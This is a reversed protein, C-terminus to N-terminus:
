IKPENQAIWDRGHKNAIGYEHPGGYVVPVQEFNHPPPPSATTWELSAAEWPNANAREGKVLSWLFNWAFLLQAAGLGFASWSGFVNWPQLPRLFTYLSPDAIRRPHGGVGVRLMVFFVGNLFIFTLWFHWRSLTPQMLRGFMKPYWYYLGAFIGFLVSAALVFHFHGVVFYTGHIYINLTQIANFLGTLGGIAFSYAVGLAYLMPPPFRISGRWLTGLWNLFLIATPVSIAITLFMFAKGLLPNMGSTFMHHGWVVGSLAVIATLALVTSKYGFAPKRSFLAFLDGVLGWVPLILIYVEPHGFGWFLHQYLLPQGGEHPALPGSLFFATGLRRDLLVLILAVAVLPLWLTNLVSAFFLGWVTLPMRSLSMGPARLQLVTTLFNVGGMLISVGDLIIGLIVLDQGWSPNVTTSASLPAYSVWGGAAPGGPVFFSALIALSGLFLMWYSLRNLRPFAMDHAGIELPIAFNGFMGLVLPTLAFFVMIVGHMTFLMTFQEASPSGGSGAFVWRGVLPVPVSPFALKWRILMAFLGAVALFLLGTFMYQKAIYKHDVSFVYKRFFGM